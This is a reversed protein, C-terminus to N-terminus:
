TKWWGCAPRRHVFGSETTRHHVGFQIPGCSGDSTLNWKVEQNFLVMLYAVSSIVKAFDHQSIQRSLEAEAVATDDPNIRALFQKLDKSDSSESDVDDKMQRLLDLSFPVTLRLKSHVAKTACEVNRNSTSQVSEPKSPIPEKEKVEKHEELQAPTIEDLISNLEEMTEIVHVEEAHAIDDDPKLFIVEPATERKIPESQSTVIYQDLRKELCNSHFIIKFFYWYPKWALIM